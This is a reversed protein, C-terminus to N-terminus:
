GAQLRHFVRVSTGNTALALRCYNSAVMQFWTSNGQVDAKRQDEQPIRLVLYAGLGMNRGM